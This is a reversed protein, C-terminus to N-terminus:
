GSVTEKGDEIVGFTRDIEFLCVNALETAPWKNKSAYKRNEAIIHMCHAAVQRALSNIAAEDFSDPVGDCFLGADLAMDEVIKLM